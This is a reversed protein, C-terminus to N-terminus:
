AYKPTPYLGQCCARSSYTSMHPSLEKLAWVGLTKGFCLPKSQNKDKKEVHCGSFCFISPANKFFSSHRGFCIVFSFYIGLLM